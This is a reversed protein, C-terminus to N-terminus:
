LGTAQQRRQIRRLERVREADKEHRPVVYEVGHGDLLALLAEVDPKTRRM